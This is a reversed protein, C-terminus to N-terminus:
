KDPNRPTGSPNARLRRLGLLKDKLRDFLRYREQLSGRLESGDGHAQFWRAMECHFHETGKTGTFQSREPPPSLPRSSLPACLPGTGELWRYFTDRDGCGTPSLIGYNPRSSKGPEYYYPIEGEPDFAEMIVSGDAGRVAMPALQCHHQAEGSSMGATGSALGRPRCGRVGCRSATVGGASCRGRMTHRSELKPRLSLIGPIHM